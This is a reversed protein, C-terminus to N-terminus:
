QSSFITEGGASLYSFELSRSRDGDNGALIQSGIIYIFPGPTGRWNTGFKTPPYGAPLAAVIPTGDDAIEIVGLDVCSLIADEGQFVHDTIADVVGQKIIEPKPWWRLYVRPPFTRGIKQETLRVVTLLSQEVFERFEERTMQKPRVGGRM